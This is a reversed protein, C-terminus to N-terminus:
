FEAIFKELERKIRNMKIYRERMDPSFDDMMNTLTVSGDELTYDKDIRTINKILLDKWLKASIVLPDSINNEMYKEGSGSNFEQM